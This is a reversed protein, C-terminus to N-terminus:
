GRGGQRYFSQWQETCDEFSAQASLPLMAMGCAAFLAQTQTFHQQAWAQYAQRQAGDQLSLIEGEHGYLQVGSLAPLLQESQDFFQLAQVSFYEGLAMLVGQLSADKQTQALLQRFDSLLLLQTGTREHEALQMLIEPLPAPNNQLKSRWQESTPAQNLQEVLSQALNRGAPLPLKRLGNEDFCWVHLSAGMQEVQKALLAGVRIAQALKIRERTGFWMSESLDFLLCWQPQRMAEFRKSFPEGTKAMLRWDLHRIEDGREYNTSEMYELGQGLFPSAQSGQRLARSGQELEQYAPTWGDLGQWLQALAETDLPMPLSASAERSQARWGMWWKRLSM